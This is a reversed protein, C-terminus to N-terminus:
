SSKENETNTSAKQAQWENVFEPDHKQLLELCRTEVEPMRDAAHHTLIEKIGEPENFKDFHQLLDILDQNEHSKVELAPIATKLLSVSDKTNLEGSVRALSFTTRALLVRKLTQDETSLLRDLIKKLGEYVEQAHIDGLFNVLSSLRDEAFWGDKWDLDSGVVSNLLELAPPVLVASKRAVLVEVAKYRFSLDRTKDALLDLLARDPIPKIQESDFSEESSYSLHVSDALVSVAHEKELIRIQDQLINVQGVADKLENKLTDVQAVAEKFGNLSKEVSDAVLQDARSRLWFWFAGGVILVLFGIIGVFWLSWTRLWEDNADKLERKFKSIEANLLKANADALKAALEMKEVNEVTQLQNELASIRKKLVEVEPDSKQFNQNQQALLPSFVIGLLVAILLSILFAKM